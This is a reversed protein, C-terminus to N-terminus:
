RAAVTNGPVSEYYLGTALTQQTRILAAIAERVDSDVAGPTNMAANFLARGIASLLAEHETVFQETVRVERHPIQAQAVPAPREHLRADRLYPCDFPCQITVERETGCCISCIEGRVGPCFRRPRRVRCIACEM